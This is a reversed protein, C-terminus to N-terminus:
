PLLGFVTLTTQTGVYVKGNIVTPTAFKTGQDLTDRTGAQNSNYLERSIDAANYAHLVANSSTSSTRQLAWLIGNRSGNASISPTSGPAAFVLSTRAVPSTSLQGNYLRFQRLFDGSAGYYINNEWYAPTSYNSKLTGVLTQVCNNTLSNFQGLNDRNVLYITGQKGAEILLHAPAPPPQDPLLIIGGAALDLDLSLLTAQDYPTFFDLLNLNGDLKLISDGFDSGGTDFDFNGNGTAVYINGTEDVAPGDGDEWIGGAGGNPTSNFVALQNLTQADYGLIWGHYPKTDTHGSAFALYIVGNLSLLAPRQGQHFSDFSVSGSHSGQGTGPVSAQILVPSNPREAGTTMDLAHLRYRLTGSEDTYPLVYITQTEPVIVPTSTIGIEPSVSDSRVLSSPVTSIGNQPNIFSVQWLPTSSLGDADFAYVSDHETAVYVVNHIGKGPVDVNAVYLPQSYVQGDVPYSFLKGFQAENVNGSTLVTESLNQGLRTNDNHYTFIGPNDTVTVQASASQTSDNVDTATVIHPGDILSPTYLGTNSITGVASDGGPFNDVSWNVSSNSTFQLKQSNTIAAARPSITVTTNTAQGTGTVTLTQLNSGDTDAVTVAGNRTGSASPTFTVTILCHSGASLPGICNNTQSYDGVANISLITLSSGGVNTLTSTLPNSPTNVPQASFAITTPSLSVATAMGSLAAMQPSGGDSDNVSITGNRTGSATPSFTVSVTCHGGGPSLPANCNNTQAFDGMPIVSNVTVSASPNTNTVLLQKAPSTTGILRLTPFNLQSASLKVYTGTGDLTVVQPSDSASDSFTMSGTRVGASTPTFTVIIACSRGAVLSSGCNNTQSFDGVAIISTISLTATGMNSLTVRQGNSTKGVLLLAFNLNTTSLTVASSSANALLPLALTLIVLAALCPLCVSRRGGRSTLASAISKSLYM